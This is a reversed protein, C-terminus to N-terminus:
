EVKAVIEIIRQGEGVETDKSKSIKKEMYGIGKINALTCDRVMNRERLIMETMRKRNNETRRYIARRESNKM